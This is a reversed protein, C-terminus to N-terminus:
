IQSYPTPTLMLSKINAIIEADTFGPTVRLKQWDPDKGFRGWATLWRAIHCGSRRRM